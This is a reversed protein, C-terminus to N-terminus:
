SVNKMLEKEHAILARASKLAQYLKGASILGEMDEILLRFSPAAELVDAVLSRFTEMHIAIKEPDVYALQIALYIRECPTVVSGPSLIDPERLVPVENSIFIEARAEGNKIVAGGIIVREHPRLTLRLAMAVDEKGFPV